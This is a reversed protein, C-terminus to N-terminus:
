ASSACRDGPRAPVERRGRLASGSLLGVTQSGTEHLNRHQREVPLGSTCSRTCVIRPHPGRGAASMSLAHGGVYGGRPDMGTRADLREHNGEIPGLEGLQREHSRVFQGLPETGVDVQQARHISLPIDGTALLHQGGEPAGSCRTPRRQQRDHGPRPSGRFRRPQAIAQRALWPRPRLTVRRVETALSPIARPPSGTSSAPGQILALRTTPHVAVFRVTQGSLHSCRRDRCAVARSPARARSALWRDILRLDSRRQVSAGRDCGPKANTRHSQHTSIYVICYNTYSHLYRSRLRQM